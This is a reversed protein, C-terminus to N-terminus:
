EGAVIDVVGIYPLNRYRQAYDLGYGVVFLDPIQFGTYDVNVTIVRRSPKDLLTCLKLSAPKRAQLLELLCSLTYGTDIIDEIVLVDRNEISEQLDLKIRVNGASVMGNAYSSAQIFDITVPITLRKALEVMFFTSGKLICLLHLAKGAYDQNIRAALEDIKSEVEQQSLYERVKEM